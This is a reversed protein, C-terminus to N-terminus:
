TRCTHHLSPPFSKASHLGEPRLAPDPTDGAAPPSSIKPTKKGIENFIQIKGPRDAVCLVNLCSKPTSRPVNAIRFSQSSIFALGGIKCQSFKGITGETPQSLSMKWTLSTCFATLFGFTGM